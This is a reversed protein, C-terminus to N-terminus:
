TEQRKGENQTEQKSDQGKFRKEQSRKKKYNEETEGLLQRSLIVSNAM